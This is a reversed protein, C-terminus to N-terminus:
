FSYTCLCVQKNDFLNYLDGVVSSISAALRRLLGIYALLSEASGTNHHSNYVSGVSRLDASSNVQGLSVMNRLSLVPLLLAISSYRFAKILVLGVLARDRVMLVLIVATLLMSAAGPLVPSVVGSECEICVSSQLPSYVERCEESVTRPLSSGYLGAQAYEQLSVGGMPAHSVMHQIDKSYGTAAVSLILVLLTSVLKKKVTKM